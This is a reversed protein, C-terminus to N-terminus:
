GKKGDSKGGSGQANGGDRGTPPNVPKPNTTPQYGGRKEFHNSGAKNGGKGGRGGGPKGAM